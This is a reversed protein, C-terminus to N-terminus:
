LSGQVAGLKIANDADYILVCVTQKKFPLEASILSFGAVLEVVHGGRPSANQQTLM